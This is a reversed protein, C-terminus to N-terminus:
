TGAAEQLLVALGFSAKAGFLHDTYTGYSGAVVDLKRFRGRIWAADGAENDDTLLDRSRQRLYAALDPDDPMAASAAQWLRASIALLREPWAGSHPVSYVPERDPATALGELRERLGPHLGDLVTHRGLTRIDRRVAEPTTRRVVTHIDLIERRREPRAALFT